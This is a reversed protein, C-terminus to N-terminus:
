AIGNHTSRIFQIFGYGRSHLKFPLPLSKLERSNHSVCEFPLNKDYFIIRSHVIQVEKGPFQLQHEATPHFLEVSLNSSTGSITYETAAVTRLLQEREERTSALGKTRKPFFYNM